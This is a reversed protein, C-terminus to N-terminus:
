RGGVPRFVMDSLVLNSGSIRYVDVVITQESAPRKKLHRAGMNELFNIDDFTLGPPETAVLRDKSGTMYVYVENGIRKAKHGSSVTTWRLRNLGVMKVPTVGGATSTEGITYGPKYQILMTAENRVKADGSFTVTIQMSGKVQPYDFPVTHTWTGVPVAGGEGSARDAKEKGAALVPVSAVAVSVVLLLRLCNTM